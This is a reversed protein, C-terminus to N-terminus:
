MLTIVSIFFGCLHGCHPNGLTLLTLTPTQPQLFHPKVNVPPAYVGVVFSPTTALRKALPPNISSAIFGFSSVSYGQRMKRTFEFIAWLVVTEHQSNPDLNAAFEIAVFATKCKFDGESLCKSM